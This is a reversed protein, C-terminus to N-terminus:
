TLAVSVMTGANNVYLRVTGATSDRWVACTGAGNNWPTTATTPAGAGSYYQWNMSNYSTNGNTAMQFVRTTDSIYYDINEASNLRVRRAATGSGAKQTGITLTNTNTTWDIVAREYNSSDTYTNYVRFSQANVGNRQAIIQAADRNLRADPNGDANGSSWGMSQGSNLNWVATNVAGAPSTGNYFTFRGSAGDFGYNNTLVKGTKDISIKSTGGVQFDALLSGTASATDTVNLKLGTFTVATANWTQALDLIPASTTHTVNSAILASSGAAPTITKTGTITQAGTLLLVNTSLRSDSLTGTSIDAASGSTAVSALGTIQSAALSLADTGGSSHSSAHTSPTRSDSLRTDSGYVVQTSSANGTAPIDKESATGLTPKSTLDTYSGSFLTPKNSLDAYSGSTAISALGTIQSAALSLPDTGGSAHSAAHALTSSPTRSDSLRTDTGYVVQTSSANGSAPIDKSSATGLSPKSTLDAYSGSFLTPKNLVVGLGSTANWDTQIQVASASIETYASGSWRYTKGGSASATASIRLILKNSGSTVQAYYTTTPWDSGSNNITIVGSSSIDVSGGTMVPSSVATVQYAPTTGTSSYTVPTLALNSSGKFPTIDNSFGYYTSFTATGANLYSISASSISTGLVVYIKGSEGTTPLDIIRNYELVDDVYSPLQYSPVLGNVLNAYSGSTQKGSLASNINSITSNINSITSDLGSIQSSTHTHSASAAGLEALSPRAHVHDQRAPHTSSGTSAVSGLPKIEDTLYGSTFSTSWTYITPDSSDQEYGSQSGSIGFVFSQAWLEVIRDSDNIIQWSGNEHTVRWDGLIYVASTTGYVGSSLLYTGGPPTVYEDRQNQFYIPSGTASVNAYYHIPQFTPVTPIDSLLAITGSEHKLTQTYSQGSQPTGYSVFIDPVLSIKCGDENIDDWYISNPNLGFAQGAIPNVHSISRSSITISPNDYNSQGGAITLQDFSPSDHIGLPQTPLDSTLALTGDADPVSITRNEGTATWNLSLRGDAGNFNISANSLNLTSGGLASLYSGDITAVNPLESAKVLTEVDGNSGTIRVINDDAVLQAGNSISLSGDSININSSSLSINSEHLTLSGGNTDSGPDYPLNLPNTVSAINVAGTQGNVSTVPYASDILAQVYGSGEWTYAKPNGPPQAVITLRAGGAVTAIGSTYGIGGNAVVIGSNTFNVLGGSAGSQIIPVNQQGLFGSLNDYQAGSIISQNSYKAIYLNGSKGVAPFNSLRNYVYSPGAPKNTLDDYSGSTAVASLGTVQAATITIPDTGNINHSAAHRAPAGTSSTTQGPPNTTAGSFVSTDGSIEYTKTSSLGNNISELDTALKKIEYLMSDFVAQMGEATRVILTAKNTRYYSSNETPANIPFDELQTPTAIAAFVDDFQDKVFDRTRKIVFIESPADVAGTVEVTMKYSSIDPSWVSTTKALNFTPM